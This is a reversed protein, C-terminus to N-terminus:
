DCNQYNSRMCERAMQQAASIDANSMREVLFARLNGSTPHGNASAINSWMHAMVNSQLVGFGSQYMVGLNNQADTEGQKASLRYWKVAEAYDQLVGEGNQYRVGMTNQASADGQDAALRYWKVAEAHDQPVGRGNVYMMGLNYQVEAVGLEALPRWEQLATAYDGAQYAALGKQYDQAALPTFAMFSLAIALIVTIRKM